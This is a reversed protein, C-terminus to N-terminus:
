NSKTLILSSGDVYWKNDKADVQQLSRGDSLQYEFKSGIKRGRFYQPMEIVSITYHGGDDGIAEFSVNSM